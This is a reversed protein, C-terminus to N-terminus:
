KLGRHRQMKRIVSEKGMVLFQGCDERMRALENAKQGGSMAAMLSDSINGAEQSEVVQLCLDRLQRYAHLDEATIPKEVSMKKEQSKLEDSERGITRNRENEITSWKVQRSKEGSSSASNAGRGPSFSYVSVGVSPNQSSAGAVGSDVIPSALSFVIDGTQSISPMISLEAPALQDFFSFSAENSNSQLLM